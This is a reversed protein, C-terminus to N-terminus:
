DNLLRHMQEEAVSVHPTEVHLRQKTLPNVTAVYHMVDDGYYSWYAHAEPGTKNTLLLFNEHQFVKYGNPIDIGFM